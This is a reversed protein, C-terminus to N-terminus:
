IHVRYITSFWKTVPTLNNENIVTQHNLESIRRKFFWNLSLYLYNFDSSKYPKQPFPLQFGM